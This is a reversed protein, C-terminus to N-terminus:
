SEIYDDWKRKTKPRKRDQAFQALTQGMRSADPHYSRNELKAKYRESMADNIIDFMRQEFLWEDLWLQREKDTEAKRHREAFENVERQAEARRALAEDHRKKAEPTIPGLFRVDGNDFDLSVDDPHPLPEPAPMGILVCREIERSWKDKYTFWVGFNELKSQYDAEEVDRVMEALTKQAFRNGKLASVAISRYVAQIVPLEVLDEGERLTITRYAELKLMDEAGRKGFGAEIVPKNRAGKPRGRPNGSQGKRFRHEVPPRRIASRTPFRCTGTPRMKPAPM